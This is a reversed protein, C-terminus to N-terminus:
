ATPEELMMPKLNGQAFHRDTTLAEEFGRREMIVFSLCDPSAGTNTAGAEM